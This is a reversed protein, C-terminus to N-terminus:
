DGIVLDENTFVLVILVASLDVQFGEEKTFSEISLIKVRPSWRVDASSIEFGQTRYAKQHADM